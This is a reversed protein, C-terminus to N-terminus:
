LFSGEAELGLEPWAGTVITQYNAVGVSDGDRVRVICDRLQHLRRATAPDSCDPIHEGEACLDGRWQGHHKGDFGFYLGAGLHFGTDGMVEIELPRREGSELTFHLTGGLLRRTEPHYRLAPELSVFAERSGDPHEVGGQLMDPVGPVGIKLYFHHISYPRGDPRRMLMPCWLFHMAFASRDIGPALDPPPEGVGYRVGWSHDRTCYWDSPTVEQRVGDLEVWGEPVGVQHYRVLDTEIRYGGPLRRHEREELFPPIASGDFLVDFGIPQVDNPELRVRVKALPEVVEYHLPGVSVADPDPALRRSARLTWQEVGRSVGGYADMVNRNTYKGFGFGIQLGGDRRGISGCIKEAWSHDSQQVTAFTEAIQHNLGEDSPVLIGASHSM